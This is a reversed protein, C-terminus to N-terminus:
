KESAEHMDSADVDRVDTGNPEDSHINPVTVIDIIFSGTYGRRGM